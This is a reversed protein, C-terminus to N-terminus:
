AEVITREPKGYFALTILMKETIEDDELIGALHGCHMVAVRRCLGTIEEAESSIFIVSIGQNVMDEILRYIERKAGVDIGRTPEDMILLSPEISMWKAIVVKQQNGGSLSEVQTELSPALIHLRESFRSAVEFEVRPNLLKAKVMRYLGALSLNKLIDWHLLLGEEKRNEPILGIGAKIAESPSSFIKREGNLKMIGSTHRDAGFLARALETRGSGLLGFVGLVEGSRVKLTIDKVSSTSLGELSLVEKERGPPVKHFTEHIDQGLMMQILSDHTSDVTSVTGVLKGDRLCTIRDSIRLVEELRHSVFIVSIGSKILRKVIRFLIDVEKSALSSTPEDMIVIRADLSIAKAIETLQQHGIDLDGVKARPSLEIELDDLLKETDSYLRSSDMKAPIISCPERGLYINSAVDLNPVLNLEQHIISIGLEQARYVSNINAKRGQILVEGEDEKYVGSLINLLTSKGAGNEGILAHVERARADFNVRDLAKVGPFTKTINKLEIFPSDM